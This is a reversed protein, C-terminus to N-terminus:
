QRLGNAIGLVIETRLAANSAGLRAVADLLLAIEATQNRVGSISALQAAIAEGSGSSVFQPDQLLRILLEHSTHAVSSLVATRIWRDDGGRRAIRALAEVADTAGPGHVEGLSYAVQYRVRAHEDNARALVRSL